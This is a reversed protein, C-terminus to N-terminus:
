IDVKKEWAKKYKVVEADTEGDKLVSALEMLPTRRLKKVVKKISWWAIVVVTTAVVPRIWVSEM